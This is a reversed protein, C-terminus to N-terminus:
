YSLGIAPDLEELQVALQGLQPIDRVIHVLVLPQLLDRLVPQEGAVLEDIGPGIHVTQPAPQVRNAGAIATFQALNLVTREARGRASCSVEGPLLPNRCPDPHPQVAPPM